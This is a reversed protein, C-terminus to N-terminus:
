DGGGLDEDDQFEDALDAPRELCDPCFSAEAVLAGPLHRAGCGVCRVLTPRGPRGTVLLFPATVGSARAIGMVKLGDPGPMRLDSLVVDFPGKEALLTLLEWGSAADFVEAHFPELASHLLERMEVDDEAVLLRRRRRARLRIVEASM